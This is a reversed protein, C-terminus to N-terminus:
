NMYIDGWLLSHQQSLGRLLNSCQALPMWQPSLFDTREAVSVNFQSYGLNEMYSMIRLSNDLYESTFEISVIGIRQTLGQIVEYEFGEVDIKTYRPVGHQRVLNDLTTIAIEVKQDWVQGKFRGEMWDQSFTSLAPAQTNINMQLLGVRSGLGKPVVTVAPQQAFREKLRAVCAPQPEVSVVHAGTSLFAATKDGFNAGVDFVLDGPVLTKAIDHLVVHNQAAMHSANLTM